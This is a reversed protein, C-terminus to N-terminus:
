DKPGGAVYIVQGTVFSSAEDAFFAAANAIDEPKGSRAVPIKSINAEVFKDYDVGVREATSKTMETEIFGPAVANVTVGYKGLEIALTKTFGQLGAKATAYNAQGRNGLASTSSINIIRGYNQEVMYKQVARAANFSGKLHVDMVQQWDDDTMKFLLNDRIVGANNVLIDLSGFASVVEKMASEVEKPQTVSAVKTYVDYGKGKFEEATEQLGEENVDIIAIKAGEEAFQQTIGKGIGRSGGTVFAVKGSFRGAM